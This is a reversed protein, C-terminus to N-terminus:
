YKQFNILCFSPIFVFNYLIHSLVKKSFSIWVVDLAMRHAKCSFFPNKELFIIVFCPCVTTFLPRFIIGAPSTFILHITFTMNRFGLFCNMHLINFVILSRYIWLVYLVWTDLVFSLHVHVIFLFLIYYFTTMKLFELLCKIHLINFVIKLKQFNM